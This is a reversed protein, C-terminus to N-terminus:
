EAIALQKQIVVLRDGPNLDDRNAYSGESLHLFSAEKGHLELLDLWSKLDNPKDYVTRNLTECMTLTEGTGSPCTSHSESFPIVPVFAEKISESPVDPLPIPPKAIASRNSKSFYRSKKGTKKNSSGETDALDCIRLNQFGLIRAKLKQKFMAVQKEYICGHRYIERNSSRDEYFARDLSLGPVDELFIDEKGPKFTKPKRNERKPPSRNRSDEIREPPAFSESEDEPRKSELGVSAPSASPFM